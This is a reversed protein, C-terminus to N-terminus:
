DRTVALDRAIRVLARANDDDNRAAVQRPAALPQNLPRVVCGSEPVVPISAPWLGVGGVHGVRKVLEDLVPGDPPPRLHSTHRRARARLDAQIWFRRFAPDSGAPTDFTLGRAVRELDATAESALPHGSTFLAAISEADVSIVDRHETPTLPGTALVVDARGADIAKFAELFGMPTLVIDVDPRERGFASLLPWTLSGLGDGLVGIRLRLRM